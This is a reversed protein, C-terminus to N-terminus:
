RFNVSKFDPYHCCGLPGAVFIHASEVSLLTVSDGQLKRGPDPLPRYPQLKSSCFGTYDTPSLALILSMSLLKNRDGGELIVKKGM